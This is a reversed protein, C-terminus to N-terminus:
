WRKQSCLVLLNKFRHHRRRIREVGRNRRRKEGEGQIRIRMNNVRLFWQFNRFRRSGQAQEHDKFRIKQGIDMPKEGAQTQQLNLCPLLLYRIRHWRVTYETNCYCEISLSEYSMLLIGGEVNLDFPSPDILLPQRRSRLGRRFFSAESLYDDFGCM